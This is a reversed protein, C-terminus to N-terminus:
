FTFLLQQFNEVRNKKVKVGEKKLLATKKALEKQSRSGNFGNLTGDSAVVRHCPIIPAYPNCRLTQGIARYAKINMASALAKYTTVKGAPVQKTLQYVNQAFVSPQKTM